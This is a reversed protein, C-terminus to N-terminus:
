HGVASKLLARVRTEGSKDFTDQDYAKCHCRQDVPVDGLASEIHKGCGFWTPQKCKAGLSKRVVTDTETVESPALM